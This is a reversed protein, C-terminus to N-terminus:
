AHHADETDDGCPEVDYLALEEPALLGGEYLETTDRELWEAVRAAEAQSTFVYGYYPGLFEATDQALEGGLATQITCRIRYSMPIAESIPSIDSLREAALAIVDARTLDDGGAACLVERVADGIRAPDLDPNAQALSFFAAHFLASSSAPLM